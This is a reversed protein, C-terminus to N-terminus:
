LRQKLFFDSIERDRERTQLAAQQALLVLPWASPHAARRALFRIAQLPLQLDLQPRALLLRAVLAAGIACLSHTLLERRAAASLLM